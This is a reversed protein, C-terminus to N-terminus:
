EAICYLGKDTRIFIQGDSVAPTCNSPEGLENTAVVELKEPNPKVVLTRGKQDTVYINGGAYVMSGWMQSPGAKEKWLVKGSQPDICEILNPGKFPMYLRGDVLVGSGINEPFKEGRWVRQSQTVDGSGGLRVGIGPGGFGTISVCVDGAVVPSSYSLDGRNFRLGECSWLPKGDEFSYAVVRTPMAALVQENGQFTIVLPTAWSGM